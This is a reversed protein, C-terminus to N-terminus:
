QRATVISVKTGALMQGEAGTGEGGAIVKDGAGEGGAIKRDEVGTGEGGVIKNGGVSTENAAQESKHASCTAQSSLPLIAFLTAILATVFLTHTKM